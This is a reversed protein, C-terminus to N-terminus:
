SAPPLPPMEKDDRLLEDMTVRRKEDMAKRILLGVLSAAVGNDMGCYVRQPDGERVADFFNQLLERTDGPQGEGRIPESQGRLQITCGLIDAAGKTGILHTAIGAYGQPNIWSHTYHVTLGNPYELVATYFDTVDREPNEPEVLNRRGVAYAAIPHTQTVWWLLNFEHVAQEVMWDGSLARKKLWGRWGSLSAWGNHRWFRGEILEGLAGDRIKRVIDARGQHAAWQFGIQVIVHPYRQRAEQLRKLERVTIALPKEGYFHKGAAMADLYMMGHWYCPTAFVVADIDPRQLLERYHYPHKGYADPRKGQAQEVLQCARELHSPEVDCIAVVQIAPLQLTERLLVTGRGGVGIFAVRLPKPQASLNAVSRFALAATGLKVFTRRTMGNGMALVEREGSTRRWCFKATV